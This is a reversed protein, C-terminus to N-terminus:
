LARHEERDNAKFVGTASNYIWDSSGVPDTIVGVRNGHTFPNEPIKDLYAALGIRFRFSRAPNRLENFNELTPYVADHDGWYRDIATRVTELSTIVGNLRVEPKECDFDPIAVAAVLGAIFLLALVEVVISASKRM